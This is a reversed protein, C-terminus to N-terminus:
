PGLVGWDTATRGQQRLKSERVLGLFINFHSKRESNSCSYVIMVIHLINKYSIYEPINVDHM